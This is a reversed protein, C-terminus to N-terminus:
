LLSNMSLSIAPNKGEHTRIANEILKQHSVSPTFSNTVLKSSLSTEAMMSAMMMIFLDPGFLFTRIM